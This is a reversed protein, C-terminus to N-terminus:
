QHSDFGQFNGKFNFAYEDAPVDTSNIKERPFFTTLGGPAVHIRAGM